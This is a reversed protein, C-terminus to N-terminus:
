SVRDQVAPDPKQKIVLRLSQDFTIYSWMWELFIMLKNKVGLIAMLHVFLWFAWALFGKFHFGPLDVFAKNRGVTAMSGLDRYSFPQPSKNQYLAILNKALRDAQQIAVQAVQPHGHPLTESSIIAVDGIAYIETTSDVQNYANVSVRGNRQIVEQIQAKM